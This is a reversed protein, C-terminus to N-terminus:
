KLKLTVLDVKMSSELIRIQYKRTMGQCLEQFSHHTTKNILLHKKTLRGKGTQHRHIKSFIFKSSNRSFLKRCKM